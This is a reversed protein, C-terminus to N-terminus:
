SLDGPAPRAIDSGGGHEIPDLRLPLLYQIRNLHAKCAARGRNLKRL